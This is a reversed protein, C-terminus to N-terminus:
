INFMFMFMFLANYIIISEFFGFFDVYNVTRDARDTYLNVM